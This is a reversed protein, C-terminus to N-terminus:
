IVEEMQKKCKRFCDLLKPHFSGCEGNIIMEFATEKDIAKKYVRDHTLADYVDALSVIMASVPIKNGSLGDPYGKGDYREHHSRCIEYSIVKYEPNYKWIKQVRKLLNYGFLPHKKIQKFEETTLKGPKLLVNDSIYLKGIDHLSSLECIAKIRSPTLYYEPYNDYMTKALIKTYAKVRKIHDGTDSDRAEVATGLIDILEEINEHLEANQIILDNAQQIVTDELNNKHTYLKISNDIRLKVIVNSFPKHLFDVIGYKLCEAEADENEGSIIIVPIKSTINNKNLYKLVTYGDMVPMILDLLIADFHKENNKILNIGENGNFAHVVNYSSSLLDALYDQDIQADDIILITKMYEGCYAFFSSIKLYLSIM